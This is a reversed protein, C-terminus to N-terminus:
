HCYTYHFQNWELGLSLYNSCERTPVSHTEHSEIDNLM